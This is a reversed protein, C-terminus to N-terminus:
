RDAAPLAVARSGGTGDDFSVVLPGIQAALATAVARHPVLPM